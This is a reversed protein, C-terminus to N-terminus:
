KGEVQSKIRMLNQLIVEFKKEDNVGSFGELLPNDKDDEISDLLNALKKLLADRRKELELEAIEWIIQEVQAYVTSEPDKSM